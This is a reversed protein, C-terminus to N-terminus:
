KKDNKEDELAAKFMVLRQLRGYYEEEMSDPAAENM